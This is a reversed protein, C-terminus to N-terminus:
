TSYLVKLIQKLVDVALKADDQTVQALLDSQPHAGYNGFQRVGHALNALPADLIGKNKLEIIQTELKQGKSAGKDELAQQLARRAMAVAAKSAGVNLSKISEVYDGLVGQPVSAPLDQYQAYFASWHGLWEDVVAKSINYVFVPHYNCTKKIVLSEIYLSAFSLHLLVNVIGDREAVEKMLEAHELPVKVYFKIVRDTGPNLLDYYWKSKYDAEGLDIIHDIVALRTEGERTKHMYDLHGQIPFWLEVSPYVQGTPLQNSFKVNLLFGTRSPSLSATIHFHNQYTIAATPNERQMLPVKM